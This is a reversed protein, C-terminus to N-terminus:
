KDGKTFEKFLQEIHGLRTKVKRLAGEAALAKQKWRATEQREHELQDGWHGIERALEAFEGITMPALGPPIVMPRAPEDVVVTEASAPAASVPVASVPAASVPRADGDVRRPAGHKDARHKAVSRRDVAGETAFACDACGLCETGDELTLLVRGAAIASRAPDPRVSIVRLSGVFRQPAPPPAASFLADAPPSGGGNRGM